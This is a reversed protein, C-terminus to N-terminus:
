SHLGAAMESLKAMTNKNRAAGQKAAPIKLKLDGMGDPYLPNGIPTTSANLRRAAKEWSFGSMTSSPHSYSYSIRELVRLHRANQAVFKQKM